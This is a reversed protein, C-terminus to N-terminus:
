RLGANIKDLADAGPCLEAADLENLPREILDIRENLDEADPDVYLLGTVVEGEAQREQLYATAALRDTPDYDEDLKRVRIQTGDHQTVISLQGPEM